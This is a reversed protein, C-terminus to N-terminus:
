NVRLECMPACLRVHNFMPWMYILFKKFKKELNPAWTTYISTFNGLVKLKNLVLKLYKKTM